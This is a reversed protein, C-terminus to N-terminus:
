RKVVSNIIGNIKKGFIQPSFKDFASRRANASMELLALPNNKLFLIKEAIKDPSRPPVYMGTVGDEIIDLTGGEAVAIVPRGLIIAELMTLGFPEADACSLVANSICYFQRIYTHFGTFIVNASINFDVALKKLYEIYQPSGSGVVLLKINRDQKCAIYLARVADEQRKHPYVTSLVSVVFDNETIGYQNRIAATEETTMSFTRLLDDSIDNLVVISKQKQLTLPLDKMVASSVCILKNSLFGMLYYASRHGLMFMLHRNKSYLERIFFIHPLDYLYAAIAPAFLVSSNTIVARCKTKRLLFCIRVASIFSRVLRHAFNFIKLDGAILWPMNIYHVKYEMSEATESLWGKYPIVIHVDYRNRDIVSLAQIFSKEAGAKGGSHSVFLIPTRNM